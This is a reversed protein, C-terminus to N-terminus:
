KSSEVPATASPWAAMLTKVDSAHGDANAAVAAYRDVCQLFLEPYPDAYDLGPALNTGSARLGAPTQASVTARLRDLETRANAADAALAVQRKRADEEAARARAENEAHQAASAANSKAIATELQAVYTKGKEIEIHLNRSDWQLKCSTASLAVVLAAWVWKPILDLLALM